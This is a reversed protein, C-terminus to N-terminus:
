QDAGQPAASPPPNGEAPRGPVAPLGATGPLIGALVAADMPPGSWVRGGSRAARVEIGTATAHLALPGTEALVRQDIVHCGPPVAEARAALVVLDADACAAALRDEAGKGSLAVWRLGAFVFARAGKPGTFGPRAAAVEQTALDGDNELWNEAAFGGGSSASLARGEPGMLGVLRGDGAIILGPREAAPWLALALAAPAIGAWRARGPWLILWLAGLSLLPLVWPGPAPIATVAGEIAAVRHAVFLIWDCGLGMIWLPLGALGIPALIAALAGMPMVIVGMVPVTLLNAVFGLDAFRNFHAAAYPATALGGIASSVVLTFVPVTWRPWRGLAVRHDLARFGAILAVTAAMSMQFGPELLTEPKWLMLIAGAVAASRLTIARRDLLVAGLMVTVMVFARETAVNSGSLMLYFLAVFFSVGAAVKKGNLRVALPPVAAIATRLLAFVFGTLFALNMGSIALIHALSSDRLAEVTDRSIGSRDGTMAGAAFAGADGPIADRMGSALWVRLRGIWEEGRGAPELLLVPSRTYGVAGLGDFFAMRRFDFGGPEVAGEPAALHATLIVTEGPAPDHLALDGHLAVRVRQPRASPAMDELVVRDLTIRLADSSSRDIEVVRGEVPGYYRHELMPGAVLQARLGAALFGAALALLLGGAPRALEPARLLVLAGLVALGGAGAHARLGPEQPWLFWLGVGAGIAVAALPFLRGRAAALAGLPALVLAVAGEGRGVAIGSM